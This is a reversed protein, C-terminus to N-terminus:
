LKAAARADPILGKWDAVLCDPDGSGTGVRWEPLIGLQQQLALYAARWDAHAAPYHDSDHAHRSGGKKLVKRHRAAPFSRDLNKQIDTLLM